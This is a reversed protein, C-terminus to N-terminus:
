HSEQHGRVLINGNFGNISVMEDVADNEAKNAVHIWDELKTYVRNAKARIDRLKKLTWNRIQTLRFRLISKEVKIAQKM